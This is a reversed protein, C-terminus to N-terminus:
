VVHPAWFQDKILDSYSSKPKRQNLCFEVQSLNTGYIKKNELLSVGYFLPM